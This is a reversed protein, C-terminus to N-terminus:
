WIFNLEIDIIFHKSIYSSSKLLINLFLEREIKSSLYVNM